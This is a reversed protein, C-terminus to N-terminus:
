MVFSPCLLIKFRNWVICVEVCLIMTVDVVLSCFTTSCDRVEHLISEFWTREMVDVQHGVVVPIDTGTIRSLVINTIIDTEVHSCHNHSKNFGKPAKEFVTIHFEMRWSRHVHYVQINFSINDDSVWNYWSARTIPM